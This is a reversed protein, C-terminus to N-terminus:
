AHSVVRTAMPLSAGDAAHVRARAVRAQADLGGFLRGDFRAPAGAGAAAPQLAISLGAASRSM